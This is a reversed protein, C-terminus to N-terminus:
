VKYVPSKNPYKAGNRNMKIISKPGNPDNLHDPERQKADTQYMRIIIKTWKIRKSENQHNM